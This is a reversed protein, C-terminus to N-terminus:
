AHQAEKTSVQFGRCFREVRARIRKETWSKGGLLFLCQRNVHTFSGNRADIRHDSFRITKRCPGKAGVYLYVSRKSRYIRTYGLDRLCREIVDAMPVGALASEIDSAM